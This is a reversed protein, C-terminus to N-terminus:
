NSGIKKKITSFDMPKKIVLFYDPINYAIPDVPQHFIKSDKTKWLNELIKKAM